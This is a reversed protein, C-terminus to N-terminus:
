NELCNMESEFSSFGSRKHSGVLCTDSLLHEPSVQDTETAREREIYM